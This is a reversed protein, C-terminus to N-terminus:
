SCEPRRRACSGLVILRLMSAAQTTSSFDAVIIVAQVPAQKTESLAHELVDRISVYCGCVCGARGRAMIDRMDRASTAWSTAVFPRVQLAGEAGFYAFEVEIPGAQFTGPQVAELRDWVFRTSDRDETAIALVVRPRTHTM